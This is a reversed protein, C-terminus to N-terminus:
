AIRCFWSAPDLGTFFASPSNEHDPGTSETSMTLIRGDSYRISEEALLEEELEQQRRQLTRRILDAQTDRQSLYVARTERTTALEGTLRSHQRSLGAGPLCVAIRSDRIDPSFEARRQRLLIIRFFTDGELPAGWSSSWRDARIVEGTYRLGLHDCEISKPERLPFQELWVEPEGYLTM